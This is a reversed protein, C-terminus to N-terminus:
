HTPANTLGVLLAQTKRAAWHYVRLGVFSGLTAKVHDVICHGNPVGKTTECRAFGAPCPGDSGAGEM